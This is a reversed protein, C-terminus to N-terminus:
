ASQAVSRKCWSAFWSPFSVYICGQSVPLTLLSCPSGPLLPLSSWLDLNSVDNKHHLVLHIVPGRRTSTSLRIGNEILRRSAYTPGRAVIHSIIAISLRKQPTVLLTSAWLVHSTANISYLVGRRSHQYYHSMWSYRPAAM